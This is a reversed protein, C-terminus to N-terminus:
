VEVVYGSSVERLIATLPGNNYVIRFTRLSLRRFEFGHRDLFETVEDIDKFDFSIM